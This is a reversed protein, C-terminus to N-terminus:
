SIALVPGDPATSHQATSHQVRARATAPSVTGCHTVTVTLAVEPAHGLGLSRCGPNCAM